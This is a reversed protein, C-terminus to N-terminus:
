KNLIPNYKSKIDKLIWNLAPDNGNIADELTPQIIVDPYIGHGEKTTKFKSSMLM